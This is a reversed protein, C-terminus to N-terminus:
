PLKSYLLLVKRGLMFRGELGVMETGGEDGPINSHEAPTSNAAAGIVINLTDRIATLHAASLTAASLTTM